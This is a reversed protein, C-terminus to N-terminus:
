TTNHKNEAEWDLVLLAKGIVGEPKIINVFSEAEKVPDNDATPRAFHYVGLKKDTAKAASFLQKFSPDTWGIGESSKIIVFDAKISKLNINSQWNSIDIGKLAM